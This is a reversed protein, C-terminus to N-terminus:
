RCQETGSDKARANGGVCRGLETEGTGRGTAGGDSNVGPSIPQQEVFVCGVWPGRDREVGRNRVTQNSYTETRAIAYM